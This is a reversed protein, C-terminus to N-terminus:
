NGTYSLEAGKITGEIQSVMLVTIFHTAGHTLNDIKKKSLKAFVKIESWAENKAPKIRNVVSNM